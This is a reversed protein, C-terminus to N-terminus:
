RRKKNVVMGLLLSGVSYLTGKAKDKIDNIGDATSKFNELLLDLKDLTKTVRKILVVIYFVLVVFGIGLVLYLIDIMQITM